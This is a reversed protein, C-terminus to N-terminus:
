LVLLGTHSLNGDLLHTLNVHQVFLVPHFVLFVFVVIYFPAVRQVGIYRFPQLFESFLDRPHCLEQVCLSVRWNKEHVM